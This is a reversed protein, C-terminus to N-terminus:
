CPAPDRGGLAGRDFVQLVDCYYVEVEFGIEITLHARSGDVQQPNDDREM